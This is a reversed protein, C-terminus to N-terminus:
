KSHERENNAECYVVEKTHMDTIKMIAGDNWLDRMYDIPFGALAANLMAEATSTKGPFNAMCQGIEFMWNSSGFSERLIGYPQLCHMVILTPSDFDHNVDLFFSGSKPIDRCARV